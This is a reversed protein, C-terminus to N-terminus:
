PQMPAPYLRADRELALSVQDLLAASDDPQAAVSQAQQSFAEELM